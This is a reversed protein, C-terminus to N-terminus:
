RMPSLNSRTRQVQKIGANQQEAAWRKRAQEAGLSERKYPKDSPNLAQAHQRPQQEAPLSAAVQRAKEAEAKLKMALEKRKKEREEKAAAAAAIIQEKEDVSIWKGGHLIKGESKMQDAHAEAKERQQLQEESEGELSLIKERTVVITGYKVELLISDANEEQLRGEMTKGTKFLVTCYDGINVHQPESEAAHSIHLSLIAVALLTRM